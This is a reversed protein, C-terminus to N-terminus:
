RPPRQTRPPVNSEAEMATRVFDVNAKEEFLNESLDRISPEILSDLWDRLRLETPRHTFQEFANLYVEEAIDSLVLEDEVLAEAAPYREVMRGVRKNLWIDYDAMGQRFARYDGRAAAEALPGAAPDEPALMQRDQELRRRAAAVAEEDPHERYADVKCNLKAFCRELASDLYTNEAGTFLTRGPLTLKFEAHYLKREPHFVVHIALRTEAFELVKDALAELPNQLRAREDEPIQCDKTTLDVHLHDIAYQM